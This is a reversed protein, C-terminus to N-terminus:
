SFLLRFLYWKPFEVQTVYKSYEDYTMKLYEHLNINIKNIYVDDHWKIIMEDVIYEKLLYDPLSRRVSRINLKAKIWGMIKKM